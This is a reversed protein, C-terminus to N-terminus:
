IQKNLGTELKHDVQLLRKGRFFFVRCMHEITYNISPIVTSM